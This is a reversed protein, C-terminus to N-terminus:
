VHAGTFRLFPAMKEQILLLASKTQGSATQGPTQGLATQGPKVKEQLVFFVPQLTGVKLKM